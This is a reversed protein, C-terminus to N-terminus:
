SSRMAMIMLCFISGTALLYGFNAKVCVWLDDM